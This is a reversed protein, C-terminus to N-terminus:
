NIPINLSERIVGLKPISYLIQISAFNIDGSINVRVDDIRVWPLYKATQQIIRPKISGFDSTSNEFLFNRVGVGFSTDMVREGPSTLVIMKLNQTALEKYTQILRYGGGSSRNLPLSPAIGNM